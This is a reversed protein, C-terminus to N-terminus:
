RVAWRFRVCYSPDVPLDSPGAELPVTPYRAFSSLTNELIPLSFRYQRGVAGDMERDGVPPPENDVM